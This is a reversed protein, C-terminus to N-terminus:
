QSHARSPIIPGWGGGRGSKQEGSMPHTTPEAEREEGNSRQARVVSRPSIGRGSGPSSGVPVESVM